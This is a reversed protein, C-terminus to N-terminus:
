LIIKGDNVEDDIGHLIGDPMDDIWVDIKIGRAQMYRRKSQLSTFYVNSEGVRTGVSQMVERGQEPARATVVYVTHGRVRCYDIFVDWLPPDATYTNDFDLSINM